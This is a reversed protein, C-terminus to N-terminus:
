GFGSYVGQLGLAVVRLDMIGCLGLGQIRTGLEGGFFTRLEYDDLGLARFAVLRM